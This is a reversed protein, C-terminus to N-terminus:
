IPNAILDRRVIHANRRQNTWLRRKQFLILLIREKKISSMMQLERRESMNLCILMEAMNLRAIPAPLIQKRRVPLNVRPYKKKITEQGTLVFLRLTIMFDLADKCM